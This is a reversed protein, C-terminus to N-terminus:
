GCSSGTAKPKAKAAPAPSPSTTPNADPGLTVIVDTTQSSPGPYVLSSPLYKKVLDAKLIESNAGGTAYTIQTQAVTTTATKVSDVHFGLATLKTKFRQGLGDIGSGNLIKVYVDRPAPVSQTTKGYPPLPTENKLAEWLLSARGPYPLLVSSGRVSSGKAPVIRFDVNQDSGSLRSAIAQVQTADMNKDLTFYRGIDKTLALVKTPDILVGLSKAKHMVTRMFLQQRQIRGLDATPDIYRARVFSLAVDGTMHICGAKPIDLGSKADILPRNVYIDVGNLDNVISRFGAFNVEVYHNITLGTLLQVTKIALKPGGYAYAANIKQHGYGPVEVWLDRPISVVVANSARAAIHILIMTDSRQGSGGQFQRESRDIGEIVSRKDSGLVLINQPANPLAQQLAITRDRAKNINSKAKLYISGEFLIAVLVVVAVGILGRKVFRKSRERKRGGPVELEKLGEFM